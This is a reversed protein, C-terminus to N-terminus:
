HGEENLGQVPVYVRGNHVTPAGTIAASPHADVKRVWIQQGTNADVAYVNAKMDGFYVANGSRGANKYPGISLATRIGGNAVFTWHTCGTRPDLAHVEANESAAFLRGGAYAPQARAANVNAYGFAWKLKLKPLDAATLGGNRAYRANSTGNGWGNWSAGRAPDSMAPSTKCKSSATSAATSGLARGALFESVARRDADSMTSGQQQMKGNVLANLIAEPTMSRLTNRTPASSSADSHCSACDREYAVQGAPLPPAGFAGPGPGGQRPAQPPPGQAPPAPAQAAGSVTISIAAFAVFAWVRM